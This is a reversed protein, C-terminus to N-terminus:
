GDCSFALRTLDNASVLEPAGWRGAARARRAALQHLEALEAAAHQSLVPQLQSLLQHASSASGLCSGSLIVDAYSGAGYEAALQQRLNLIVALVQPCPLGPFM